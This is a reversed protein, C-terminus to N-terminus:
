PGTCRSGATEPCNVPPTLMPSRLVSSLMAVGQETLAYPPHKIHQGKKLTVFQSRLSNAEELTLQFMFDTPFREINRRVAQVLAKPHVGYLHALDTSLMIRQGRVLFISKHLGLNFPMCEM